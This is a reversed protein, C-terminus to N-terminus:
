ADVYPQVTTYKTLFGILTDKGRFYVTAGRPPEAQAGYVETCEARVAHLGPDARFAELAAIEAGSAGGIRWSQELVGCIVRGTPDRGRVIDYNRRSAFFGAYCRHAATDYTRAHEIAVRADENIDLTLLADFDGRAITLDSGGYVEMGNPDQALKQTGFYTAVLDAVCVQGVSYTTVATLNQEVVVGCHGLEEPAINALAAKLTHADAAVTQGRGGIALSPKVRVEGARLLREGGRQADELSFAACGPLVAGQVLRTFERSWGEPAAAGPDCLPHTNSKTGVFSFPVVGGFLDQEGRIGLAHACEGKLTEAPVFYVATDYRDSANYDGAFEYGQLTALKKAIAKRTVNEHSAADPNADRPYSVVVGRTAAAAASRQTTQRRRKLSGVFGM